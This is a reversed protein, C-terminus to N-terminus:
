RLGSALKFFGDGRGNIVVSFEASRICAMIWSILKTPFGYLPMISELFGWDMRDFAKSLDMKLCFEERKRSPLKFSYLVERLMIVNDSIDRGPMFACQSHSICMGIYPKLRM